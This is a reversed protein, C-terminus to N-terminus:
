PLAGGPGISPTFLGGRTPAKPGSVSLFIASLSLNSSGVGKRTYRNLLQEPVNGRTAVSHRERRYRWRSIAMAQRANGTTKMAM